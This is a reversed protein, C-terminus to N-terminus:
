VLDCEGQKHTAATLHYKGMGNKWVVLRNQKDDSMQSNLIIKGKHRAEFENEFLVAQAEAADWRKDERRKLLWLYWLIPVLIVITACIGVGMCVNDAWTTTLHCLSTIISQVVWGIFIYITVFAVGLYVELTRSMKRRGKEQKM